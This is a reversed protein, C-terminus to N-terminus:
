IRVFDLNFFRTVITCRNCHLVFKNMRRYNQPFFRCLNFFMWRPFGGNIYFVITKIRKCQDVNTYVQRCEDLSTQLRRSEDLSEDVSMQMRRCEDLSEDLSMQMRRHSTEMRRCEDLSTQHSAQTKLVSGLDLKPLVCFEHMVISQTLYMKSIYQKSGIVKLDFQNLIEIENYMKRNVYVKVLAQM